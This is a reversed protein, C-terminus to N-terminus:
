ILQSYKSVFWADVCIILNVELEFIIKQIGIEIGIGMGIVM